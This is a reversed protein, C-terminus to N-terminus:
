FLRGLAGPAVTKLPSWTVKPNTLPGAISYPVNILGGGASDRFLWGVVPIKGPLSNVAYAPVVAGTLKLDDLMINGKITVGLNTGVAYGENLTLIFDPTLIFPIVIEDFVIDKGRFADVIGLITMAQMLFGTEKLQTEKVEIKGSIDGNEKQDAQLSLKGNMFRDSVNLRTMLDGLDAFEGYFQKKTAEYTLAFPDQAIAKLQFNQWVRNKRKGSIFVNKFPKEKKLAFEDLQIDLLINKIKQESSTSKEESSPIVKKLDYAQWNKGKLSLSFDSLASKLNGSFQNDGAVVETALNLGKGSWEFHGTVKLDDQKEELSGVMDWDMKGQELNISLDAFSLAFLLPNGQKKQVALPAIDVFTNKADLQLTGSFLNTSTNKFATLDFFTDGELLPTLLPSFSGVDASKLTGSLLVESSIEKPLFYEKWGVKLPSNKLMIDGMVELKENTVDLTLKGDKLGLYAFPENVQVKTMDAHVVAKVQDTTMDDLLPFSLHVTTQSQGSLLSPTLNFMQPFELPKSSILELAQKVPGSINLDIQLQTIEKDLDTFLLDAKQLSLENIKGSNALIHVKDPYLLVQASVDEVPTMPSLYDVRIGKARIDGLLDTLEDGTFYLTFDAQSLYGKTLNEKVWAHADPGQKPPWLVPVHETPVDYLTAKLTTKLLSVDGKKLFRDIGEVDLYFDVPKEDKLVIKSSAIKLAKAGAGLTGNIDASQVNYINDLDDMLNLTGPKLTKANFQLKTLYDSIWKHSKSFNFVGKTSVQVELNAEKLVPIFNSIKQLNIKDVGAELTLDKTFRNLHATALLHADIGDGKLTGKLLAEHAFHFHRELELDADPIDWEQNFRLDKVHLHANSIELEHIGLIRQVIKQFNKPNVAHAQSKETKVAVEGKQDIIMELFPKELIFTSPLYNLTLIHWLDYSATAVPAEFATTNDPRLVKLNKIDIQVLGPESWDSSLVLSETELHYGSEKPLLASEIEPLYKMADMPTKHLHYLFLAGMIFILVFLIEALKWCLFITKKFFKWIWKIM